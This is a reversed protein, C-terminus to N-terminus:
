LTTRIFVQLQALWASARGFGYRVQVKDIGLMYMFKYIINIEAM